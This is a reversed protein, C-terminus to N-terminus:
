VSGKASVAEVRGSKKELARALASYAKAIDSGPKNLVIPRGLDASKRAVVPNNPLWHQFKTDLLKEGESIQESKILPKTERAVVVRTQVTINDERYIDILRKAQRISPVSTDTVVILEDMRTLVPELWEVIARPLDIVVYDHTTKMVDLLTAIQKADMASVPVMQRPAVLVDVGSSHPQLIGRMYNADPVAASEVMELLGGNDELDMMVGVSGFQVDLDLLAVSAGETKSFLGKRAALSAAINVASTTAGIGGVSQAVAVIRGNGVVPQYPKISTQKAARLEAIITNLDEADITRPLVEDVGRSRLLRAKTIPMDEVTLAVFIAQREATGVIADIASLEAPDDPDTEFVVVDHRKILDSARGNMTRLTAHETAVTGGSARITADLVAASDENQMLLLTSNIRQTM